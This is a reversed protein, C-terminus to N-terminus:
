IYINKSYDGKFLWPAQSCDLSKYHDYTILAYKVRNLGVNRQAM